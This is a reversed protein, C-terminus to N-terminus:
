ESLLTLSIKLYRAEVKGGNLNKKAMAFPAVITGTTKRNLSDAKFTPKKTHKNFNKADAVLEKM